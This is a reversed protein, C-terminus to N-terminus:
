CSSKGNDLTKKVCGDHLDSEDVGLRLGAQSKAKILAMADEYRVWEGKRKDEYMYCPSPAMSYRKM